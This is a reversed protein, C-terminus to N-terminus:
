FVMMILLHTKAAKTQHLTGLLTIWRFPAASICCLRFPLRLSSLCIIVGDRDWPDPCEDIDGEQLKGCALM